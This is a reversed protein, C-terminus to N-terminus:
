AEGEPAAQTGALILEIDNTRVIERLHPPPPAETILRDIAEVDCVRAMAVRDFKSSDVILTLRESQNIMARAVMAEELDFDMVAGAPDIAGCSLVAHDARYRSIQELCASGLTQQSEGRFEGGIVYVRHQAASSALQSAADFSNTIVTLRPATVLAAALVSTTTGTDIMLTDNERFLAAAAAAIRRKAEANSVLRQRFNAEWGTQAPMAGGHVRRLLGRAQLHSLDRRVTERSVGFRRAIDDVSLENRQNALELIAERRHAAVM